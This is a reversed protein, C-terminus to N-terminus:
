EKGEQLEKTKFLRVSVNLGSESVMERVEDKWGDDNRNSIVCFIVNVLNRTKRPLEELARRIQCLAHSLVQRNFGCKIEIAYLEGDREFLGDFSFSTGRLSGERVVRCDFDREISRIIKNEYRIADERGIRAGKVVTAKRLEETDPIFAAPQQIKRQVGTPGESQVDTSVDEEYAPEKTKNGVNILDRLNARAVFGPLQYLTRVIVDRLLLGIVIFFVPWIAKELLEPTILKVLPSVPGGWFILYKIVPRVLAILGITLLVDVLHGWFRSMYTTVERDEGKM